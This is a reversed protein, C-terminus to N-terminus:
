LIDDWATRLDKMPDDVLKSEIGLMMTSRKDIDYPCWEPIGNHNPNGNRAFNLWTDMMINSVKEAEDYSDIAGEPWKATKVTGFVFPIEFSHYSGGYKSSKHTFIYCFVNSQHKLHAEIQRITPIRFMADSLISDWHRNENNPYKTKMIPKYIQILLELDSKEIGHNSITKEIIQFMIKQGNEDAQDIFSAIIGLESENWGLILPVINSEGKKIIDFPKEPIVSGDVYPRFPNEKGDTITGAIKRQARIFKDIPVKQLANSDDKEIRLKSLLEKAGYRTLEKKYSKPNAVGSQMIAKHYLGKISPISLLIAVSEGGSSEGFITINNPDGGFNHINESVWKLAVIQDQIGINPSINPLDLFGLAGLRYNFTVVVVDGYAALRSGNSRPRSGTGILFGGDHIYFMVPRLMNDASPTWINLYLCDESEEQDIPELEQHNQPCIPGFKTTEKIDDWPDMSQPERFRLREVPPKAFPVGLFCQCNANQFGRIKGKNTSVIVM